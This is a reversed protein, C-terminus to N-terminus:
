APAEPINKHRPMIAAMQWKWVGAPWQAIILDVAAVVVEHCTGGELRVDNIALKDLVAFVLFVKEPRAHLSYALDDVASFDAYKIELRLYEM